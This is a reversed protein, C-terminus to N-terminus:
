ELNQAETIRFNRKFYFSIAFADDQGFDGLYALIHDMYIPHLALPM